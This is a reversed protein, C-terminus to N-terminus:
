INCVWCFMGIVLRLDAGLFLNRLHLDNHSLDAEHLAKLGEVAAKWWKCLVGVPYGTQGLHMRVLELCGLEFFPSVLTGVAELNTNGWGHSFDGWNYRQRVENLHIARVCPNSLGLVANSNLIRQSQKM